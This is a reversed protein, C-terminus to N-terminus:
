KWSGPNQLLQSQLGPSVQALIAVPIPYPTCIGMPVCAFPHMSSCLPRYASFATFLGTLHLCTWHTHKDTQARHMLLRDRGPHTLQTLPEAGPAAAPSHTVAQALQQPRSDTDEGLLQPLTHTHKGVFKLSSWGTLLPAEPQPM